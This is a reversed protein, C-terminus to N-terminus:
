HNTNNDLFSTVQRIFSNFIDLETSSIEYLRENSITQYGHVVRNRFGIMASYHEKEEDTLIKNDVLINIADRNDAPAQKFHKASLHYAIDVLAEVSTQLAYKLGKVIWQDSIVEEKSKEELLAKIALVQKQIYAIKEFVREKDIVM